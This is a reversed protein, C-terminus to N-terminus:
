GAFIAASVGNVGVNGAFVAGSLPFQETDAWGGDQSGLATTVFLTALDEGGFWCSTVKPAPLNIRQMAQGSEPDYRGVCGGDWHAVWLKGEADITMGDPYGWGDPVKAAISRNSVAGTANDFDFAAIARTASDIFFMRGADASWCIGNPITLNDLMPRISFDPDIRYLTGAGERAQRHMTGVWFRGAPDCKGDNFRLDPSNGPFDLKPTTQGSELYFTAVGNDSALLMRNPDGTLVATGPMGDLEFERIQGNESNKEGIERIALKKANIDIWSLRNCRADWMSGEGLSYPGPAITQFEPDM